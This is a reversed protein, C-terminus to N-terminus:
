LSDFQHSFQMLWFTLWCWNWSSLNIRFMFIRRNISTGVTHATSLFCEFPLALDYCFYYECTCALVCSNCYPGSGYAYFGFGIFDILIVVPFFWLSFSPHGVEEDALFSCKFIEYSWNPNNIM